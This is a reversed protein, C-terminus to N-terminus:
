NSSSVKMNVNVMIWNITIILIILLILIIKMITILMSM